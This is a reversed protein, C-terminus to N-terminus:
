GSVDGLAQQQSGNPKWNVSCEDEIRGKEGAKRAASPKMVPRSVKFIKRPDAGIPAPPPLPFLVPDRESVRESGHVLEAIENVIQERTASFEFHYEDMFQDLEKVVACVDKEFGEADAIKKLYRDKHRQDRTGLLVSDGSVEGAEIAKRHEHSLKSLEVYRRLTGESCPLNDAHHSSHKALGRLTCGRDQLERLRDGRAVDSLEDWDRQLRKL